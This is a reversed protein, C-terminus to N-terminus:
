VYKITLYICYSQVCTKCSIHLERRYWVLMPRVTLMVFLITYLFSLRYCILLIQTPTHEKLSDGVTRISHTYQKRYCYIKTKNKKQSDGFLLTRSDRRINHHHLCNQEIYLRCNLLYYSADERTYGCLV